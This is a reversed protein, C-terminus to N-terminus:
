NTCIGQTCAVNCGVPCDATSECPFPSNLCAENVCAGNFCFQNAACSADNVCEVCVGNVCLENPDCDDNTLCGAEICEGNVCTEGANCDVETLCELCDGNVCVENPGCLGACLDISNCGNAFIAPVCCLFIGVRLSSM